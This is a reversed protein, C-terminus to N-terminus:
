IIKKADEIFKPALEAIVPRIIEYNRDNALELYIGYIMTHATFFGIENDDKIARSFIGKVAQSTRDTWKKETRAKRTAKQAYSIALAYLKVKRLEYINKINEKVNSIGSVSM